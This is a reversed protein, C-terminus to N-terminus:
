VINAMFNHEDIQLPSGEIVHQGSHKYYLTPIFDYHDVVINIKIFYTIQISALSTLNTEVIFEEM